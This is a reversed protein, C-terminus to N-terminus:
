NSLRQYIDYQDKFGREDLLRRILGLEDSDVRFRMSIIYERDESIYLEEVDTHPFNMWVDLLSVVNECASLGLESDFEILYNYMTENM